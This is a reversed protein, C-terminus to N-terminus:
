LAIVKLLVAIVFVSKSQCANLVTLSLINIAYFMSIIIQVFQEIAGKSDVNDTPM